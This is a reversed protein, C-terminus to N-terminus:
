VHDRWDWSSLLHNIEGAAKGINYLAHVNRERTFGWGDDIGAAPHLYRHYEASRQRKRKAHSLTRLDVESSTSGRGSM